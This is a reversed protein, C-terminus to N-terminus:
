RRVWFAGFLLLVMALDFSAEMIELVEHGVSQTFLAWSVLTAKVFHVAFASAVVYVRAQATRKAALLTLLMLVLSVAAVLAVIGGSLTSLAM